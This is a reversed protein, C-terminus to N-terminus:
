DTLPEELYFHETFFCCVFYFYIALEARLEFVPAKEQSLCQLKTHLWLAKNKSRIEDQLIIFLQTNLSQSKIFDTM